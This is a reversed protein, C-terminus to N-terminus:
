YRLVAAVHEVEPLDQREILQVEGSAALTLLAAEQILDTEDHSDNSGRQVHVTDTATDYRGHVTADQRLLLTDVRGHHAAAVVANVGTVARADHQGQLASFREILDAHARALQPALVAYAAEHLQTDDLAAPNTEVVGALRSGLTSAQKFHGSLEVDAVLVVPLQNKAAATNLAAAVQRAFEVLQNKRWDTPSDGYVQANSINISGTNPRAVPSAQVPNEYDPDGTVEDVGAPLEVSKDEVLAFRSGRLLRVQGATLSLVWFEAGMSLLPLLPKLHFQTGVVVQEELPVPVSFRQLGRNSLFVVLGQDQHQWFAHDEVLSWGPALLSDLESARVGRSELLDRAESLLNKLRIPDQRVESGRVHTPLFVSVTLSGDVAALDSLDDRSFM